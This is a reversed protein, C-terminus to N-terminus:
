GHLRGFRNRISLRPKFSRVMIWVFAPLWILLILWNSRAEDDPFIEALQRDILSHRPDHADYYVPVQAGIPYAKKLLEEKDQSYGYNLRVPFGDFSATLKYGPALALFRSQVGSYTVGRVAFDYAVAVKYDHFKSIYEADLPQEFFYNVTAVGTAWHKAQMLEEKDFWESYAILAAVILTLAAFIEAQGYFWVRPFSKGPRKKYSEYFTAMQSDTPSITSPCGAYEKIKNVAAELNMQGLRVLTQHKLAYVVIHRDVIRAQVLARGLPLRAEKAYRVHNEMETRGILGSLVLLEGLRGQQGPYNRFCEEELEKELAAAEYTKQACDGVYPNADRSLTRLVALPLHPDGAMFLRVDDHEDIALWEVLYGPTSKNCAVSARVEPDSDKALRVLVDIPSAPNEALRLRVQRDRSRLLERLLETDSLPNAARVLESQLKM